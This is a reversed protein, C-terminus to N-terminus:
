VSVLKDLIGAFKLIFFIIFFTIAAYVAALQDDIMVGVGGSYKKELKKVGLPKIIDFFRFLVLGAFIYHYSLMLYIINEESFQILAWFGISILSFSTFIGAVEDIVICGPDHKQVRNGYAESAWVGIFYSFFSLFILTFVILNPPIIGAGMETYYEGEVQVLYPQFYILFVIITAAISGFTGPAFPVKGIGFFTAIVSDISFKAKLKAKLNNM